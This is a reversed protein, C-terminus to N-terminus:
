SFYFIPDRRLALGDQGDQGDELTMVDILGGKGGECHWQCHWHGYNEKKRRTIKKGVSLISM